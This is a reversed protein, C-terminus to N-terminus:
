RLGRRTPSGRRPAFAGAASVHRRLRYRVGAWYVLYYGLVIAGAGLSGAVGSAAVWSLDEPSARWVQWSRWFGYLLRLTVVMTVALVLWRNPTYHLATPGPDWRTLALGALGLLCGAALGFLAYRFADPVWAGTVAAVLLFIGTSLAVTLLNIAAVWGRALRRTTGVRYRQVLSLPILLLVLLLGLLVVAVAILPM